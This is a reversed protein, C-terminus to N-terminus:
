TSTSCPLQTFMTSSSIGNVVRLLRSVSLSPPISYFLARDKFYTQYANQMEVIFKEGNEEVQKM